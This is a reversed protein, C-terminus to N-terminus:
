CKQKPYLADRIMALCEKPQGSGEFTRGTEDALYALYREAEKLAKTAIISREEFHRLIAIELESQYSDSVFRAAIEAATEM